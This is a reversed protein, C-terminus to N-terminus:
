LSQVQCIGNRFIQWHYVVTNLILLKTINGTTSDAINQHKNIYFYKESKELKCANLLYNTSSYKVWYKQEYKISIVQIHYYTKIAKEVFGTM